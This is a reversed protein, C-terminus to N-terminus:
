LVQNELYKLFFFPAKGIQLQGKSSGVTHVKCHTNQTVQQIVYITIRQCKRYLLNVTLTSM